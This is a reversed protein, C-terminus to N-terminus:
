KFYFPQTRGVCQTLRNSTVGAILFSLLFVWFFGFVTISKGFHTISMAIWECTKFICAYVLSNGIYTVVCSCSAGVLFNDRLLIVWVAVLQPNGAYAFLWHNKKTAEGDVAFFKNM